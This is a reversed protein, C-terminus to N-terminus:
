KNYTHKMINLFETTKSPTHTAGETKLRKFVYELQNDIEALIKEKESSLCTIAYLQESGRCSRFASTDEGVGGYWIENLSEKKM